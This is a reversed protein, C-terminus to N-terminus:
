AHPPANPNPAVEEHDIAFRSGNWTYYINKVKSPFGPQDADEYVPLTEVLRGSVVAVRVEGGVPAESLLAKLRGDVYDLVIFGLDGQTGGSSVPVVADDVGDGTLDAYIIAEPAVEGHLRQAFARVDPQSRLDLM